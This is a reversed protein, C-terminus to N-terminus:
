LATNHIHEFFPYTETWEERGRQTQLGVHSPMEDRERVTFDKRKETRKEKGERGGERRRERVIM